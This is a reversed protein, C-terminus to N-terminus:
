EIVEDARTLLTPPVTLGLAKATKLNITLELKTPFEIPLEAPATGKLIKDVFYGTRRYNQPVKVGYSVLGGAEVHEARSHLAPLRAANTLALIRREQTFFMADSLVIVADARAQVLKQFASELDDAFRVEVPVIKIGLSSALAEADRLMAANEDSGVNVLIGVRTAGPILEALLELQKGPLSDLTELIGTVNGGPRAYSVALGLRIPHILVACVIPITKTERTTALTAATNATVIVQPKLQVLEKALLPQREVVGEAWRDEFDINRGEVYGFDKLGQVFAGFNVTAVARSAGGLWAVLPRKSSVQGRATLPWAVAAGSLLTIFERRQMDAGM